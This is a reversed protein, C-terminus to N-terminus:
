LKARNLGLEKEIPEAARWLGRLRIWGLALPTLAIIGGGSWVWIPIWNPETAPGYGAPDILLPEAPNPLFIRLGAVGLVALIIASRSAIVRRRAPGKRLLWLAALVLLSIATVRSVIEIM